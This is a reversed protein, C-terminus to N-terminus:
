SYLSPCFMRVNFFFISSHDATMMFNSPSNERFVEAFTNLERITRDAKNETIGFNTNKSRTLIPDGKRDFGILFAAFRTLLYVDSNRNLICIVSGLSSM